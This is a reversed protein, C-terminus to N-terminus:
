RTETPHRYFTDLSRTPTSNRIPFLREFVKPEPAGDPLLLLQPRAAVPGAEVRCDFPFRLYYLAEAAWQPYVEAPADGSSRPVLGPRDRAIADQFEVTNLPRDDLTPVVDLQTDVFQWREHDRLFAEVVLHGSGSERTEIDRRMANVLRAPIGLAQLCAHTVTAYEVCRFRGGQEAEELISLADPKKPRNSHHHEWRGHVWSCVTRVRALDDTCEQTLDDLRYRERLQVLDPHDVASFRLAPTEGDGESGESFTLRPLEDAVRQACGEPM